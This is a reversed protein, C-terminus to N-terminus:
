LLLADLVVERKAVTGVFVAYLALLLCTPACVVLWGGVVGGGGFTGTALRTM